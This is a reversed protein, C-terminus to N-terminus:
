FTIHANTDNIEWIVKRGSRAAEKPLLAFQVQAPSVEIPSGDLAAWLPSDCKTKKAQAEVRWAGDQEQLTVVGGWPLAAELCLLSLFCMKVSRRPHDGTVDWAYTLRGSRGMEALVGRVEPTGLRQDSTAQGFAVRFFKLRANAANVSEAILQLEPSMQVGSMAMLEVGNGIAGMPSILDHCLRSGLLALLDIESQTETMTDVSQDFEAMQPMFQPATM